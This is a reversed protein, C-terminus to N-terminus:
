PKMIRYFFGQNKPVTKDLFTNIPPTGPLLESITEFEKTLTATRQVLYSKGLISNWKLETGLPTLVVYPKLVFVSSPDNPDTGAALENANTAGDKDSDTNLSSNTTTLDGYLNLEELDVIGDGDVDDTDVKIEVLDFKHNSSNMHHMVMVAPRVKKRKALRRNIKIKLAKNADHMITGDIGFASQVIPKTIDYRILRTRDIEPYGYQEATGGTAKDYTNDRYYMTVESIYSSTEHPTRINPIYRTATAPRASGDTGNRLYGYSAERAKSYTNPPEYNPRESNADAHSAMKYEMDIWRDRTGNVQYQTTYETYSGNWVHNLDWVSAGFTSGRHLTFCAFSEDVGGIEQIFQIVVFNNDQSNPAKFYKIKLPYQDPSSSTAFKLWAEDSYTYPDRDINARSSMVDLGMDGGFVGYGNMDSISTVTNCNTGLSNLTQWSHGTDLYMRYNNPDIGIVWYTTGFTKGSQNEM